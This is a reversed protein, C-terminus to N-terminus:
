RTLELVRNPRIRNWFRRLSFGRWPPILGRDEVVMRLKLGNVKVFPTGDEDIGEEIVPPQKADPM